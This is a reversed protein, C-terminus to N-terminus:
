QIAFTFHYIIVLNKINWKFIIPYLRLKTTWKIRSYNLPLIRTELV